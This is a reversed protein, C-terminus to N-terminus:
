LKANFKLPRCLFNYAKLIMPIGIKLIKPSGLQSDQSLIIM